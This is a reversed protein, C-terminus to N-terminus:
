ITPIIFPFGFKCVYVRKKPSPYLYKYLNLKCYEKKNLLWQRLLQFILTVVSLCLKVYCECRPNLANVAIDPITTSSASVSSINSKTLLNTTSNKETTEFAVKNNSISNSVDGRREVNGDDEEDDYLPLLKQVFKPPKQFCQYVFRM